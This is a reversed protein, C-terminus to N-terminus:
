VKTDWGQYRRAVCVSDGSIQLTTITPAEFGAAQLWYAVEAQTYTQGGLLHFLNLKFVHNFSESFSPPGAEAQQVPAQTLQELVILQGGPRLAAAIRGLLRGNEEASLGHVINFLLVVDYDQGLDDHMFNGAQTIVRGPLGAAAINAQGATLAVPFDLVTAQLEPYRQCYALSYLAHSGGIDLLRRAGDPLPAHAMVEPLNARAVSGLMAQFDAAAAPHAELWTYFHTAPRGLRLSNELDGWLQFLIVSWFRHVVTYDYNIVTAETAPPLMWRQAMPSNHYRGDAGAQVYGFQVLAELLIQAGRASTQTHQAIAAPTLPGAALAEFFGLRLAADAARFGAAALLDLMPAPGEHRELFALKEEEPLILPM